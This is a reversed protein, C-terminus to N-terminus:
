ATPWLSNVVSEINDIMLSSTIHDNLFKCSPDQKVILIEKSKEFISKLTSKLIPKMWIDDYKEKTFKSVAVDSWREAVLIDDNLLNIFVTIYRKKDPFSQLLEKKIEDVLKSTSLKTKVSLSSTITELVTEGASIHNTQEQSNPQDDNLGWVNQLPMLFLVSFSMTTLMLIILYNYKFFNKKFM